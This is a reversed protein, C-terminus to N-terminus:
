TSLVTAKKKFSYVNNKDRCEVHKDCVKIQQDTLSQVLDVEKICIRNQHRLAILSM